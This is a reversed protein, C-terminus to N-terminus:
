PNKCACHNLLYSFERSPMRESPKKRGKGVKHVASVDCHNVSKLFHLSSFFRM